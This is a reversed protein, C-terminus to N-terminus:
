EATWPYLVKKDKGSSSACYALTNTTLFGKSCLKINALSAILQDNLSSLSAGELSFLHQVLILFCIKLCDLKDHMQLFSLSLNQPSSELALGIFSKISM